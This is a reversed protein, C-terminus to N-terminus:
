ELRLRKGAYDIHLQRGSLLGTGLLPLEGQGVIVQVATPTGFWEIFAVHSQLTVVSGDALTAETKALPDLRLGEIMEGPMVLHGDFATDIWVTVPKRRSLKRGVEVSLLARNEDDVVGNM